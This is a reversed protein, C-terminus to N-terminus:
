IIVLRPSAAQIVCQKVLIGSKNEYLKKYTRLGKPYLLVMHDYMLNYMGTYLRMSQLYGM